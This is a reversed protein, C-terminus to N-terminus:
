DTNFGRDGADGLGPVIYARDNLCEDVACVYVSVDPHREQMHKIGEPAAILGIYALRKAGREKFFTCADGATGGTALMPDAVIVMQFDNPIPNPIHDDYYRDARFTHEDRKAGYFWIPTDRPLLDEAAEMMRLAARLIPVMAVRGKLRFAPAQVDLPTEVTFGGEIELDATVRDVLFSTLKRTVKQFRSKEANRDRIESLYVQVLPHDVM